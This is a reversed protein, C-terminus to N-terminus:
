KSYAGLLQTNITYYSRLAKIRRDIIYAPLLRMLVVEMLDKTEHPAVRIINTIESGFDLHTQAFFHFFMNDCGVCSDGDGRTQGM